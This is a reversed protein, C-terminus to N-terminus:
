RQSQAGSTDAPCSAAWALASAAFAHALDRLGHVAGPGDSAPAAARLDFQRQALVAHTRTSLMRVKARLVVHSDSPSDFAQSFEQLNVDLRVPPGGGASCARPDDKLSSALLAQELLRSPAAVWQTQAYAHLQSEDAYGLRYLVAPTDLWIPASVTVEPNAGVTRAADASAAPPIGFDYRKIAPATTSCAALVAAAMLGAAATLVIQRARTRSKMM